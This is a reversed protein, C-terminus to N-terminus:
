SAGKKQAAMRARQWGRRWANALGRPFYPYPCLDLPVGDAYAERGKAEPSSELARKKHRAVHGLSRSM